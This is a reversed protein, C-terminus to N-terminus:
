KVIRPYGHQEMWQKNQAKKWAKRAGRLAARKETAYDEVTLGDKTVKCFWMRSSPWGGPLSRPYGSVFVIIENDRDNPFRKEAYYDDINIVAPEPDETSM